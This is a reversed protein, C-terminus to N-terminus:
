IVSEELDAADIGLGALEAVTRVQGAAAGGPYSVVLWQGDGGGADIHHSRGGAGKRGGTLSLTIVEVRMGAPLVGAPHATVWRSM